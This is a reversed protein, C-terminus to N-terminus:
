LSYERKWLYYDNVEERMPHHPYACLEAWTLRHLRPASSPIAPDRDSTVLLVFARRDGYIRQGYKDLFQSRLQLQTKDGHLGQGKGEASRWKAEGFIVCQDGAVVFDIEPGGPVLTDPHPIRRWLDIECVRNPEAEPQLKHLLWNGFRVREAPPAAFLPGFYNWTMVDESHVSQLDCYYGLQSQLVQQAPDDFASIQRSQYLKQVVPAPPWPIGAPRFLQDDFRGFALVGGRSRVPTVPVGRYDGIEDPGM